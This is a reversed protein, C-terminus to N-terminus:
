SAQALERLVTRGTDQAAETDYAHDGGSAHGIREYLRILATTDRVGADAAIELAHRLEHGILAISERRSLDARIQVRLYRVGGTTAMPTLSLRGMTGKPLVMVSEIYVIVDSRNVATMLAAFTRSRHLGEALLSQLRPDAGRVRRDPANLLLYHAPSVTSVDPPTRAPAAPGALAVTSFVGVSLLSLM